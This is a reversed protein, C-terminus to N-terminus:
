IQHEFDSVRLHDELEIGLVQADQSRFSSTVLVNGRLVASADRVNSFQRLTAMVQRPYEVGEVYKVGDKQRVRFDSGGGAVSTRMPDQTRDEVRLAGDTALLTRIFFKEFGSTTAQTVIFLGVGLVTCSLSMLMARKKATLFRYAIRFNPSM